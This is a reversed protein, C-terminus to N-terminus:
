RLFTISHCHRLSTLQGTTESTRMKSMLWENIGEVNAILNRHTLMAGKSVGTTGGTYQIFATDLGSVNPKQYTIGSGMSLAHALTVTNKLHFAPVMKKVYKVVANV